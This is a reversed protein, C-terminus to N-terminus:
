TLTLEAKCNNCNVVTEENKAIVVAACIPCAGYKKEPGFFPKTIVRHIVKETNEEDPIVFDKNPDEINENHEQSTIDGAESTENLMDNYAEGINGM